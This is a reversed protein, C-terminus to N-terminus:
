GLRARNAREQTLDCCNRLDCDELSPNPQDQKEESKWVSSMSAEAAGSAPFTELLALTPPGPMLMLNVWAVLTM